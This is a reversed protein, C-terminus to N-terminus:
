FIYKEILDARLLTSVAVIYHDPRNLVYKKLGTFVVQSEYFYINSINQDCLNIWSGESPGTIFLLKCGKVSNYSEGDNYPVVISQRVYDWDCNEIINKSFLLQKQGITQINATKSDHSILFEELQIRGVKESYLTLLQYRAKQYIGGGFTPKEEVDSTRCILFKNYGNEDEYITDFSKLSPNISIIESPENAIIDYVILKNM